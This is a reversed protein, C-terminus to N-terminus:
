DRLLKTNNYYLITNNVKTAMSYILGWFKPIKYLRHRQGGEGMKGQGGGSAVM